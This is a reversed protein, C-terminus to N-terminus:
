ADQPTSTQLRGSRAKPMRSPTTLLAHSAQECKAPAVGNSIDYLNYAHRGGAEVLAGTSNRRAPATEKLLSSSHPCACCCPQIEPAAM